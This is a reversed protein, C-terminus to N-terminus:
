KKVVKNTRFDSLVSRCEEIGMGFVDAMEQTTVHQEQIGLDMWGSLAFHFHRMVAPTLGRELMQAYTMDMESMERATWKMSLVEALDAGLDTFPNVPFCRMDLVDFLKIQGRMVWEEKRPQIRKLQEAHFGYKNRLEYWSLEREKFDDWTVIVRPQDWLGFIQISQRASVQIM